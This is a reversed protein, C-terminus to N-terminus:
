PRPPLNIFGKGSFLMDYLAQLVPTKAGLLPNGPMQQHLKILTNRDMFDPSQGEKFQPANQATYRYPILKAGMNQEAAQEMRANTRLMKLEFSRRNSFDQLKQRSQSLQSQERRLAELRNMEALGENPRQYGGVGQARRVLGRIGAGKMSGNPNTPGELAYGRELPGSNFRIGEGSKYGYPEFKGAPQWQGLIDEGKPSDAFMSALNAIGGRTTPNVSHALQRATAGIVDLPNFGHQMHGPTGQGMPHRWGQVLDHLIPDRGQHADYRLQAPSNRNFVQAISRLAVMSPHNPNSPQVRNNDQPPHPAPRSPMPANVM